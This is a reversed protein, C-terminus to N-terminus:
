MQEDKDKKKSLMAISSSAYQFGASQSMEKMPIYPRLSMMCM